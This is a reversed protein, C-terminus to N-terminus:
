LLITKEREADQEFYSKNTGVSPYFTKNIQIKVAKIEKNLNRM